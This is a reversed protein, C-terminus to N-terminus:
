RIPEAAIGYRTTAPCTGPSCTLRTWEDRARREDEFPGAMTETGPVLDRFGADRYEGGVIWYRTAM